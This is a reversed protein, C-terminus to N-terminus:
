RSRDRARAPRRRGRAVGAHRHQATRAGGSRASSTWRSRTRRSTPPRSARRPRTRRGSAPTIPWGASPTPAAPRCCASSSCRTSSSSRSCSAARAARPRRRAAPRAARLGALAARAPRRLAGPLGGRGARRDRGAAVAGRARLLDPPLAPPRAGRPLRPRRALHRDVAYEAFFANVALMRRVDHAVQDLLLGDLANAAVDALRPLAAADRRASPAALPEYGVVIVREAGLALAPAIPANLRTAGDVYHGAAGLPATVEVPPFLLPIAASARM